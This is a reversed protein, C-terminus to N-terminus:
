RRSVKDYIHQMQSDHVILRDSKPCWIVGNVYSARQLANSYSEQWVGTKLNLRANLPTSSYGYGFYMFGAVLFAFGCNSQGRPCPWQKKVKLTKTDLQAVVMNSTQTSQYLCWLQKGGDCYFCTDVSGGWGFSGGSSPLSSSIVLAGTKLDAKCIAGSSAGGYYLFGGMACHYTGKKPTALSFTRTKQSTIYAAMNKFEDIQSGQTYNEIYYVRSTVPDECLCGQTHAGYRVETLRCGSLPLLDRQAAAGMAANRPELNFTLDPYTKRL